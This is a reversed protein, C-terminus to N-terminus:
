LVGALQLLQQQSRLSLDQYLKNDGFVTTFCFCEISVADLVIVRPTRVFSAQAVMRLNVQIVNAPIM